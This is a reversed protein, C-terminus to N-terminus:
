MFSGVNNKYYTDDGYAIKMFAKLNESSTKQKLLNNYVIQEKEGIKNFNQMKVETIKGESNWIFNWRTVPVTNPNGAVNPPFKIEWSALRQNTKLNKPLKMCQQEFTSKQASNGLGSTGDCRYKGFLIFEKPFDEVKTIQNINEIKVPETTSTELCGLIPNLIKYELVGFSKNVYANSSWWWRGTRVLGLNEDAKKNYPKSDYPWEQDPYKIGPLIVWELNSISSTAPIVIGDKILKYTINNRKKAIDVAKKYKDFDEQSYVVITNKPKKICEKTTCNRYFGKECGDKELDLKTQQESIVMGRQYGFLYKMYNLEENVINKM